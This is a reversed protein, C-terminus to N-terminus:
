RWVGDVQRTTYLDTTNPAGPERPRVSVFSMAPTEGPLEFPIFCHSVHDSTNVNGGAVPEAKGMRRRCGQPHGLNGDARGRAGQPLEHFLDYQWRTHGM